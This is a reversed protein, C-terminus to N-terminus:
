KPVQVAIAYVEVPSPGFHPHQIIKRQCGRWPMVLRRSRDDRRPYGRTLVIEDYTRGELRKTWYPTVLRYEEPKIGSAIADFYTAKLALTLTATM